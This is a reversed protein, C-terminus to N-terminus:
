HTSDWLCSLFNRLGVRYFTARLDVHYGIMGWGEIGSLDGCGLGGAIGEAVSSGIVAIRWSHASRSGEPSEQQLHSSSTGRFTALSLKYGSGDDM